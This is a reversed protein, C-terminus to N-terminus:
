EKKFEKGSHASGFLLYIFPISDGNVAENTYLMDWIMKKTDFQKQLFNFEYKRTEKDVVFEGLCTFQKNEKNQLIYVSSAPNKDSVIMTDVSYNIKESYYTGNNSLTNMSTSITKEDFIITNEENVWTESNSCSIFFIGSVTLIFTYINRM